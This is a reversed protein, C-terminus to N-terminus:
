QSFSFTGRFYANANGSFVRGGLQFQMKIPTISCASLTIQYVEDASGSREGAWFPIPVSDDLFFCIGSTSYYPVDAASTDWEFHMSLTVALIIFVTLRMVSKNM